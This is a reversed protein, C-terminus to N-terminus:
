FELHRRLGTFDIKVFDGIDKGIWCLEGVMLRQFTTWM